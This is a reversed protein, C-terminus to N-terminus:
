LLDPTVKCLKQILSYKDEQIHIESNFPINKIPCIINLSFKKFEPVRIDKNIDNPQMDRYVNIKVIHSKDCIPCNNIRFDEITSEIM